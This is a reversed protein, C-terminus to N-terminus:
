TPLNYLMLARKALPPSRNRGYQGKLDDYASGEYLKLDPYAAQAQCIGETSPDVGTVDWGQRVLENAVSGNGCGLEFVRRPNGALPLNNLNRFVTPLLYQHSNNMGANSYRYGSIESDNM